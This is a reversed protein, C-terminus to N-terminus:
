STTAYVGHNDARFKVPIGWWAKIIDLYTQDIETCKKRQFVKVCDVNYIYKSIPSLKYMVQIDELRFSDAVVKQHNMISRTKVDTNM